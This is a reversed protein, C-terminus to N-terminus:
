KTGSGHSQNVGVKTVVDFYHEGQIRDEENCVFTDLVWEMGNLEIERVRFKLLKLFIDWEEDEYVTTSICMPMRYLLVIIREM